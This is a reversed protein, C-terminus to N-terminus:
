AQSEEGECGDQAGVFVVYAGSVSAHCYRVYHELEGSLRRWHDCQERRRAVM